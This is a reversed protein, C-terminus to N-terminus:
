PFPLSSMCKIYQFETSSWLFFFVVELIEISYLFDEKEHVIVHLVIHFIGDSIYFLHKFDFAFTM